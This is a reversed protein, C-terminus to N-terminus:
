ASTVGGSHIEWAKGCQAGDMATAVHIRRMSFCFRAALPGANEASIALVRCVRNICLGYAECSYSGGVTFRCSRGM